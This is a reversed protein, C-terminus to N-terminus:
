WYQWNINDFTDEAGRGIVWPRNEDHDQVLSLLRSEAHSYIRCATNKRMRRSERTKSTVMKWWIDVGQQDARVHLRVIIPRLGPPLIKILISNLQRGHPMKRMQRTNRTRWRRADQITSWLSGRRIKIHRVRQPQSGLADSIDAVAIGRVSPASGVATVDLLRSYNLYNACMISTRHDSWQQQKATMRKNGTRARSASRDQNSARKSVSICIYTVLEM